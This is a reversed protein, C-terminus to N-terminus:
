ALSFNKSFGNDQFNSNLVQDGAGELRRSTSNFNIDPLKGQPSSKLGLIEIIKEMAEKPVVKFTAFNYMAQMVLKSEPTFSVPLLIFFAIIQFIQIAQLLQKMSVSVIFNVLFSGLIMTNMSDKLSEGM